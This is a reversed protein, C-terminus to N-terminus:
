TMLSNFLDLVRLDGLDFIPIDYHKAIRLAQGTGGGGKGEPTYCIVFESPTNLDHGMVQHSNRAMLHRVNANLNSWNPHFRKAMCYAARAPSWEESPHGNFGLWPLYIAKNSSDVLTEFATDAGNAGGSRLIYHNSELKSGIKIMTNLVAQPTSRSGVGTYYKM